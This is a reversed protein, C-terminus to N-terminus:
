TTPITGGVFPRMEEPALLRDFQGGVVYDGTRLRAVHAVRLRVPLAFAEDSSALEGQVTVGPELREHVLMSVGGASINWVLGLNGSGLRCITGLAPQRRPWARQERTTGTQRATSM